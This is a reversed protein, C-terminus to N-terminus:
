KKELWSHPYGPDDLEMAADTLHLPSFTDLMVAVEDTEKKGISGEYKGPQPGHPLGRPHLTVSGEAVGKRSMFEGAVYYLIEDSEVNSHAYPAPIARDHYDFLRPVFSCIVFGPGEFTQHVPPPQHIKGTIPMFDNINFIWPYYYGDWGVLDFPHHSLMYNQFGDALRVRIHFDGQENQPSIFEPVRIDRECFPAHELLQGHRNRYRKPTTVIGSTEIILIRNNDSDFNLRYLTGLPIIIYDGPKFKLNGFLSELLGSGYHIFIVEDASSNRYFFDSNEAPAAASMRVDNNFVLYNRGDVWNKQPKINFLEFHHHRHVREEAPTIKVPEFKGVQSVRTPPHIHYLNSYIDSFGKRSIHEEYCLADQHFHQIHRKEPISGHRLYFPM